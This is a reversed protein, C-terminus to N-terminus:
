DGWAGGKTPACLTRGGDHEPTRPRVIDAGVHLGQSTCPVLAVRGDKLLLAVAAVEQPELPELSKGGGWSKYALTGCLLKLAEQYDSM